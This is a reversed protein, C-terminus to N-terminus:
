DAAGARRGESDPTGPLGGLLHKLQALNVGVGPVAVEGFSAAPFFSRNLVEVGLWPSTQSATRSGTPGPSCHAVRGTRTTEVSANLAHSTPRTM